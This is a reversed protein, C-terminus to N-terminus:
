LARRYGCAPCYLADSRVLFYSQECRGCSGAISAGLERALGSVTGELLRQRRETAELRAIVAELRQDTRRAAADRGAPKRGPVGRRTHRQRTDM